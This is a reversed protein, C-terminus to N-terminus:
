FTPKNPYVPLSGVAQRAANPADEPLILSTDCNEM